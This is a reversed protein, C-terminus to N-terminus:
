AEWSGEILICSVIAVFRSYVYVRVCACLYICIDIHTYKYIDLIYIRKHVYTRTHIYIHARTPARFVQVYLYTCPCSRAYSHICLRPTYQTCHHAIMNVSICVGVERRIYVSGPRGSWYGQDVRLM